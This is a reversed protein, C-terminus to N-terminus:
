RSFLYTRLIMYGQLVRDIDSVNPLIVSRVTRQTMRAFMRLVIIATLTYAFATSFAAGAIGYRPILLLNLVLNSIFGASTAAMYSSPFDARATIYGALPAFFCNASVGAMLILGPAVSHKFEEGYILPFLWWGAIGLFAWFSVSAMLSFRASRIISDEVDRESAAKAFAITSLSSSVFFVLETIYVAVTYVGVEAPGLFYLILYVDSRVALQWPLNSAIARMGIVTGDKLLVPSLVSSSRDWEECRRLRWVSFATVVAWSVLIALLAGAVGLNFSVIFFIGLTLTVASNILSTYNSFYFDQRGLLLGNLNGAFIQFCVGGALLYVWLDSVEGFLLPVFKRPLLVYIGCLVLPSLLAGFLSQYILPRLWKPNRGVLITNSLAFVGLVLQFFMGATLLLSLHGRGTAGLWRTVVISNCMGLAFGLLRVLLTHAFANRTSTYATQRQETKM